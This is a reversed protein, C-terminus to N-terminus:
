RFTAPIKCLYITVLHIDIMVHGVDSHKKGIENM